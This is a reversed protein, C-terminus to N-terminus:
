EHNEETRRQEAEEHKEHKNEEKLNNSNVIAYQELARRKLKYITSPELYGFEEEIESLERGEIYHMTLFQRVKGNTNMIRDEILDLTEQLKISEALLGVEIMQKDEMLKIVRREFADHSGSNGGIRDYQISSIFSTNDQLEKLRKKHSAIKMRLRVTQELEEKAEEATM